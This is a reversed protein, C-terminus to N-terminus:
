FVRAILDCAPVGCSQYQYARKIRRTHLNATKPWCTDVERIFSFFFMCLKEMDIKCRKSTSSRRYQIYDQGRQTGLIIVTGDWKAILLGNSNILFSCRSFTSAFWDNGQVLVTGFLVLCSFNSILFVAHVVVRSSSTTEIAVPQEANFGGFAATAASTSGPFVGVVGVFVRCSPPDLIRRFM